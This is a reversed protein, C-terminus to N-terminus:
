MLQDYWKKKLYFFWMENFFFDDLRSYLNNRFFPIVDSFVLNSNNNNIFHRRALEHAMRNAKSLAM